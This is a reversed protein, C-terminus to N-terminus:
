GLERARRAAAEIAQMLTEKVGGADMVAIAAETTGGPSTVNQRLQRPSAGKKDILAAAGRVTAVALTTAAAQSLGCRQGGAVMAEILYFVYAPGSGSVATVADLDTEEFSLVQGMSELIHRAQATDQATAYRNPSMGSIGALVLAPTNPMVRIVPLRQRQTEDLPNYLVSEIRALSVGAAISMVLKRKRIRYGAGAAIDSLIDNLYQPKVALVVIDCSAFLEGNGRAISLGYTRQLSDLRPGNIDSVFVNQAPTLKAGIIAGAMAEGMNGAGIFGINQHNTAV